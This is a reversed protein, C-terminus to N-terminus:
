KIKYGTSRVLEKLEEKIRRATEGRWQAANSLFYLVVSRGTDAGYENTIDEMTAMAYRYPEAAPFTRGLTHWDRSIEAAIKYLARPQQTLAAIEASTMMSASRNDTM